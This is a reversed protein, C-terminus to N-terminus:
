ARWINITDIIKIGVDKMTAYDIEVDSLSDPLASVIVILAVVGIVTGIAGM